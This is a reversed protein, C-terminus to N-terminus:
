TGVKSGPLPDDIEGIKSKLPNTIAQDKAQGKIPIAIIMALPLWFYLWLPYPHIMLRDGNTWLCISGAIFASVWPWTSSNRLGYIITKGILIVLLLIGIIGSYFWTSLIINHYHHFQMQENITVELSTAIGHGFVWSEMIRPWGKEWIEPRFSTGRESLSYLVNPEIALCALGILVILTILYKSRQNRILLGAGITVVLIALLPGRSRTLIIGGLSVFFPALYAYSMKDKGRIYSISCFAAIVAYISALELPNNLRGLGEIRVALPHVSYWIWSVIIVHMTVILALGPGLWALWNDRYQATIIISIVFYLIYLSQFIYVQPRDGPTINSWCLSLCLYAFLLLLYRLPILKYLWRYDALRLSLVATPLVIFYYFKNLIKNNPSVFFIMIFLLLLTPLFSRKLFRRVVIIMQGLM